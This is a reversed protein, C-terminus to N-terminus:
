LRKAVRWQRAPFLLLNGVIQEVQEPTYSPQDREVQIVRNADRIHRWHGTGDRFGRTDIASRETSTVARVLVVWDTEPDSPPPGLEQRADGAIRKAEGVFEGSRPNFWRLDASGKM